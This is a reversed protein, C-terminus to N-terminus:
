CCSARNRFSFDQGLSAPDVKRLHRRNAEITSYTKPSRAEAQDVDLERAIYHEALDRFTAGLVSRLPTRSNINIRLAEAAKEAAPKTRYELSPQEVIKSQKGKSETVLEAMGSSENELFSLKYSYESM